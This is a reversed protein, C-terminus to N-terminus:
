QVNVKECLLFFIHHCGFAFCWNFLGFWQGCGCVCLIESVSALWGGILWGCIHVRRGWRNWGIGASRKKNKHNLDANLVTNSKGISVSTSKSFRVQSPAVHPQFPCFPVSIVSYLKPSETKQLVFPLDKEYALIWNCLLYIMSVVLWSM